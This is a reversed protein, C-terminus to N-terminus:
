FIPQEQKFCPVNITTLFGSVSRRLARDKEM